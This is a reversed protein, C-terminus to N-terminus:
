QYFLVKTKEHLEAQALKFDQALNASTRQKGEMIQEKLDANEARVQKLEREM